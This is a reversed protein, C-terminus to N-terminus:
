FKEEHKHIYVPVFFLLFFSIKQREKKSTVYFCPSSSVGSRRKFV